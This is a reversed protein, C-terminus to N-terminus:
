IELRHTYTLARDTGYDTYILDPEINETQM